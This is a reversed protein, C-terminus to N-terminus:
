AEPDEKCKTSKMMGDWWGAQRLEAKSVFAEETAANGARKLLALGQWAHDLHFLDISRYETSIMRILLTLVDKWHCWGTKACGYFKGTEPHGGTLVEKLMRRSPWQIRDSFKREYYGKATKELIADLLVWLYEDVNLTLDENPYHPIDREPIPM